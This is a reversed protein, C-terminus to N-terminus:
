VAVRHDAVWRDIRSWHEELWGVRDEAAGPVAAAPVAWWTLV